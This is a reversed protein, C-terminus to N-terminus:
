QVRARLEAAKTRAAELEVAPMPRITPSRELSMRLTETVLESPISSHASAFDAPWAAECAGSWEDREAGTSSSLM